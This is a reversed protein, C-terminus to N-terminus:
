EFTDENALNKLYIKAASNYKIAFEKRLSGPEIIKADVGFKFFYYSAQAETCYFEYKNGYKNKVNPRLFLLDNYLKIGTNSLEVIIKKCFGDILFQVGNESIATKIKEIEHDYFEFKSNPVVSVRIRSIRFSAIGQNGPIKVDTAYGVLYNYTSQNDSMICYPRVLYKVNSKTVWLKNNKNSEITKIIESFYILEREVFSKETYEEIVAKIFKGRNGGFPTVLVLEEIDPEKLYEVVNNQLSPIIKQAQIPKRNLLEIIKNKDKKKVASYEVFNLFVRCIMDSYDVPNDNNAFSFCDNNIINFAEDSLNIRQRREQSIEKM